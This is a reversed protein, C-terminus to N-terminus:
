DVSWLLELRNDLSLGRGRIGVDTPAGVLAALTTM